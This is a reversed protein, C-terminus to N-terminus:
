NYLTNAFCINNRQDYLFLSFAPHFPCLVSRLLKSDYCGICKQTLFVQFRPFFTHILLLAASCQTELPRRCLVRQGVPFSRKSASWMILSAAHVMIKMVKYYQATTPCSIRLYEHGARIPRVRPFSLVASSIRFILTSTMPFVWPGSSKAYRVRRM